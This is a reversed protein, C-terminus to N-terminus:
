VCLCLELLGMAAFAISRSSDIKDRERTRLRERRPFDVRRQHDRLRQQHHLLKRACFGPPMVRSLEREFINESRQSFVQMCTCTTNCWCCRALCNESKTCTTFIRGLIIMRLLTQALRALIRAANGM